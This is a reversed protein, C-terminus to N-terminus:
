SDHGILREYNDKIVRAMMVMDLNNNRVLSLIENGISMDQVEMVYQHFFEPYPTTPLNQIAEKINELM